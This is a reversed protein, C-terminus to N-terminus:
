GRGSGQGTRTGGRNPGPRTESDGSPQGNRRGHPGTGDCQGQGPGKRTGDCQGPNPCDPRPCTPNQAGALGASGILLLAAMLSRKTM